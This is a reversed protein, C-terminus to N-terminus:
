FFSKFIKSIRVYQKILFPMVISPALTTIFDYYLKLEKTSLHKKLEDKRERYLKKEKCIQTLLVLLGRKNEIQQKHIWKEYIGPYEKDLYLFLQGLGKIYYWPWNKAYRQIRPIKATFMPYNICGVNNSKVVGHLLISLWVYGPCDEKRNGTNEIWLSKKFINASICSLGDLHEKILEGGNSYHTFYSNGINKEFLFVNEMEPTAVFRCLYIHDVHYQNIYGLIISIFGPVIVDDDSLLYVYESDVKHVADNYNPAAQINEKQCFYTIVDSHDVLFSNVVEKTDDTSSNDSIYIHVQDKYPLIQPVVYSLCEKLDQSRNYTPIAVTLLYKM